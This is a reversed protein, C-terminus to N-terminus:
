GVIINCSIRQWNYTESAPSEGKHYENSDFIVASGPKYKFEEGDIYFSGRWDPQWIPTMFLVISKLKLDKEEDRHLWHQTKRGHYTTNFWMREMTIPIGINKSELLKEIRYVVTQGWLCLPYNIISSNFERVMLLPAEMFGRSEGSEGNMSWSPSNIVQNYMYFLEKESLVNNLVVTKM